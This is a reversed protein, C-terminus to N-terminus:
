APNAARRETFTGVLKAIVPLGTTLATALATTTSLLDKQTVFLLLVFAIIIVFFPVRLADWTSPGHLAEARSAVDDRKAAGLVYLRFTDSVLRLNPDRRVLGRAMLRRLVRRNKGNALGNKAIQDLLLKEDDSCNAWLGAYYSEARDGIEDSLRDRDTVSDFRGFARREDAESKLEHDLQLLFTQYSTEREQWNKPELPALESVTQLWRRKRWEEKRRILEEAGVCLFRDFVARWRAFYAASDPASPAKTTMLYAPTVSSVVVVTRDPLALLRELWRLKEDSILPDDIGYEFDHIRVNRGPKSRDIEQLVEDWRKREYLDKLSVDFFPPRAPDNGTVASPPLDRRVLFVSDGLSPCLPFPALWDPESIDILFVRKAIFTVAVWFLIFLPVILLGAALNMWPKDSHFHPVASEIVIMQQQRDLDSQSIKPWLMNSVDLDFRIDRRLDLYGDHARWRWLKDESRREFLQRIALSDEYLVPLRNAVISPITEATERRRTPPPNGGCEPDPTVDPRLGWSSGFMYAIPKCLVDQNVRESNTEFANLTVLHDIRHELDAAARLQAYKVLLQSEVRRSIAFFGAVPMAVGVMLLLAGCLRYLRSCGIKVGVRRMQHAVRRGREYVFPIDLPLLTAVIVAVFLITRLTRPYNAVWHIPDVDAVAVHLFFGAQVAIWVGTAIRYRREAGTRHLLIYTSVFGLSPLLLIGWLSSWPAWAYLDIGFLLLLATLVVAIRVYDRTRALNPWLRPARYGPLTLLVVVFLLLLPMACWLLLLLTLLTGEVNLVRTLRRPRFTVLTWTSGTLPRVYMSQDEGWYKASVLAKRRSVVAARLELNPEAEVIFNEYGIREVDSHYIVDGSEDIIAMRVGPPPVPHSIDILDTGVGLVPLEKVTTKMALEATVEGSSRSRIWRLIYHKGRISSTRDQMALQFYDRDSVDQLPNPTRDFRAKQKGSADLWQISHIYPYADVDPDRTPPQGASKKSLLEETLPEGFQQHSKSVAAQTNREVAALMDVARSVNDAFDENLKDGYEQLQDDALRTMKEYSLGDFLALTIVAAGILTCVVILVVDTITLAQRPDILGIRLFPWCCLALVAIAAGFLVVTTSVASVDYRFRSASVLGCVLWRRAKQDPTAAPGAFIYPQSFLVYKEDGLVVERRGNADFLGDLKLPAPTGRWGTSTSLGGLRTLVVTSASEREAAATQAASEIAAGSREESAEDDSAAATSPTPAKEIHPEESEEDIWEEEHQLLTSANPPQQTSYLVVGDDRAVILIDFAVGTRRGFVPRLVTELPVGYCKGNPPQLVVNWGEPSDHIERRLDDGGNASGCKVERKQMASNPKVAFGSYIDMRGAIQATMMSLLRLNRGNFYGVQQRYYSYYVAGVVALVVVTILLPLRARPPLRDQSGAPAEDSSSKKEDM